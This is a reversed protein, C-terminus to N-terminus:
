LKLEEIEMPLSNIQNSKEGDAGSWRNFFTAELLTVLHIAIQEEFKLVITLLTWSSVTTARLEYFVNKATSGL